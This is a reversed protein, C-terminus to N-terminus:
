NQPADFNSSSVTALKAQWSAERVGLADFVLAANRWIDMQRFKSHFSCFVQQSM